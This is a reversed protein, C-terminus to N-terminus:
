PTVGNGPPPTPSPATFSGVTLAITGGKRHKKGGSPTQSLVKGDQDPNDVNKTRVSVDFGADRLDSEAAAQSEGVVDPVEKLKGNSVYLTVSSGEDVTEGGQPT